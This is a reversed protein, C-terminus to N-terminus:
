LLAVHVVITFIESSTPTYANAAQLALYIKTDASALVMPVNANTKSVVSNSATYNQETCQIWAVGGSYLEADAIDLASNDNTADFTENSVFVNILPLTVQKSGSFVDIRRIEIAQGAVAGQGSLNISATLPASTSNTIADGIAYPATDSPRTILTSNKVLRYGARESSNIYWSTGNYTYKYGTNSEEFISGAGVGSTPKTDTSLGIFYDKRIAPVIAM